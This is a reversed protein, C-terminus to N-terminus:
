ELIASEKAFKAYFNAAGRSLKIDVQLMNKGPRTVKVKPNALKENVIDISLVDEEICGEPHTNSQPQGKNHYEASIECEEYFFVQRISQDDLRFIFREEPAYGFCIPVQLILTYLSGDTTSILLKPNILTAFKRAIWNVQWEKMLNEIDHMDVKNWVGVIEDMILLTETEIKM